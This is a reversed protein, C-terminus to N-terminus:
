WMCPGTATELFALPFFRWQPHERFLGVSCLRGNRRFYFYFLLIFIWLLLGFSFLCSNCFCVADMFIDVLKVHNMFVIASVRSAQTRLGLSKPGIGGRFSTLYESENLVVESSKSDGPVWLPEGAQAMRTLEDMASVALEVIVPKDAESPRSISRLFDATGYMEGVFCSQQGFNTIGLDLSRTPANSPLHYYSSPLPKACKPAYGNM